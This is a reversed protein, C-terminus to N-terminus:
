DGALRTASPARLGNPFRRLYAKAAERAGATDGRRARADALLFMADEARTDTPFDRVFAVFLRDANGYDGANFASMAEGFRVGPVARAAAAPASTSASASTSTSTSTSTAAVTAAPMTDVKPWREGARLLGEFGAVRVAVAGETVVISRTHGDAVDVVFRTGRVEVEGDPVAVLFRAGPKVHEVHFAAMGSRLIVRSTGETRESSLDPRGIEMVEFSPAISTSAAAPVDLGSAVPASRRQMFVVLAIALVAPVLALMMWRRPRASEGVVNENARALLDARARRRELETPEPAPLASLLTGLERLRAVAESCDECAEAHRELSARDKSGLRGDELAEVEWSRKCRIRTM